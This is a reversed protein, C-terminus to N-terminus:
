SLGFEGAFGMLLKQKGILTEAVFENWVSELTKSKIGSKKYVSKYTENLGAAFEKEAVALDEPSMGALHQVIANRKYTTFTRAMDVPETQSTAKKTRPKEAGIKYDLELAKIFFGTINRMKSKQLAATQETLHVKDLIYQKDYRACIEIAKAKDLKNFKAVLSDVFADDIRIDASLPLVSQRKYEVDFRIEKVSRRAGYRFDPTIHINSETNVEDISPKLVYRNFDKFEDYSTKNGVGLLSRWTDVPMFGTSGTKVYRYTNEWLKLSHVSTFRNQISLDLLAYIEPSALKKRLEPGYSWSCVGGKIKAEAIISSTVWEEEGDKDIINWRIPYTRLADLSYKLHDLNNSNYELLSLLDSVPAKHVERELLDDFALLLLVNSLKQQILTLDNQSHIAAVHKKLEISDPKGEDKPRSFTPIDADLSDDQQKEEKEEM